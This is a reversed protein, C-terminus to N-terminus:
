TVGSLKLSRDFYAIQELVAGENGILVVSAGHPNTDFVERLDWKTLIGDIDLSKKRTLDM